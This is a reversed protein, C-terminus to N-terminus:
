QTGRDEQEKRRGDDQAEHTWEGHLQDHRAPPPVRTVGSTPDKRSGGQSAQDPGEPGGMHEYRAQTDVHGEPKRGAGQRQGPDEDQICAVTAGPSTSGENQQCQRAGKQGLAGRRGRPRPPLEDVLNLGGILHHPHDLERGLGALGPSEAVKLDVLAEVRELGYARLLLPEQAPTEVVVM